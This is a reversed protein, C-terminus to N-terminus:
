FEWAEFGMGAATRVFPVIRSARHPSRCTVVIRVRHLGDGIARRRTALADRLPAATRSRPLKAEDVADVLLLCKRESRLWGDFAVAQEATDLAAAVSGTCLAEVRMRFRDAGAAALERLEHTKGSGAEALLAVAHHGTLWAWGRREEDRLGYRLMDPDSSTDAFTRELEVHVPPRDDKPVNGPQPCRPARTLGADVPTPRGYRNSAQM